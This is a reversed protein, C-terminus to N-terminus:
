VQRRRKGSLSFSQQNSIHQTKSYRVTGFSIIHGGLVVANAPFMIEKLM